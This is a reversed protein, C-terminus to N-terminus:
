NIDFFDKGTMDVIDFHMDKEEPILDFEMERPVHKKPTPLPNPIAKVGESSVENQKDLTEKNEPVDKVEQKVEEKTQDEISQKEDNSNKTGSAKKEQENISSVEGTHNEQALQIENHKDSKIEVDAQKEIASKDNNVNLDNSQDKDVDRKDSVDFESAGQIPLNLDKSSEDLAPKVFDVNENGSVESTKIDNSQEESSKFIESQSSNSSGEPKVTSIEDSITVNKQEPVNLEQTNKNTAMVTNKASPDVKKNADENGSSVKATKYDMRRGYKNKIANQKAKAMDSSNTESTNQKVEPNSQNVSTIDSVSNEAQAVNDSNAGESDNEVEGSNNVPADAIKEENKVTELSHNKNDRLFDLTAELAKVKEEERNTASRNESLNIDSKEKKKFLGM